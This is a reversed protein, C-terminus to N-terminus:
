HLKKRDEMKRRAMINRGGVNQMCKKMYRKNGWTWQSKSLM